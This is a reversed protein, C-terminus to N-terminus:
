IVPLPPLPLMSPRVHIQEGMGAVEQVTSVVPEIEPIPNLRLLVELVWDEGCGPTSAFTKWFGVTLPSVGFAGGFTGCRAFQTSFVWGVNSLPGTYM